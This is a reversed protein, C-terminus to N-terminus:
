TSANQIEREVIESLKDLLCPGCVDIPESPARLGFLQTSVRYETDAHRIIFYRRGAIESRCVDCRIIMM